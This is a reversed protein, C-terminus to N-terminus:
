EFKVTALMAEIDPIVRVFSADAPRDFGAGLPGAAIVIVNGDVEVVILRAAEGPYLVVQTVGMDFLWAGESGGRVDVQKVSRGGITVDSAM